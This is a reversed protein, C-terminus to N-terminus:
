SCRGRPRSAVLRTQAPVESSASSTAWRRWDPGASARAARVPDRGNSPALITEILVTASITVRPLGLSEQAASSSTKWLRADLYAGLKPLYLNRAAAQEVLARAHPVPVAGTSVALGVASATVLVHKEPLHWGRPRMM